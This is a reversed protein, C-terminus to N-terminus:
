AAGHGRNVGSVRTFEAAINAGYDVTGGLGFQLAVDLAHMLFARVDGADFEACLALLAAKNGGVHEFDFGKILECFFYEAGDQM